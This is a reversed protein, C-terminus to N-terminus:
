QMSSNSTVNPIIEASANKQQWSKPGRWFYLSWREVEVVRERAILSAECSHDRQSSTGFAETQAHGSIRGLM